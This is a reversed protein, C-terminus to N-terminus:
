PWRIQNCSLLELALDPRRLALYNWSSLDPGAFFKLKFWSKRANKKCGVPTFERIICVYSYDDHKLGCSLHSPLAKMFLLGFHM